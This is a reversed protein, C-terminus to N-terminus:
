FFHRAGIKGGLLGFKVIEFNDLSVSSYLGFRPADEIMPFGQKQNGTRKLNKKKVGLANRKIPVDGVQGSYFLHLHRNWGEVDDVPTAM